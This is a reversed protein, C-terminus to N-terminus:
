FLVYSGKNREFFLKTIKYFASKDGHIFSITYIYKSKSVKFLNLLFKFKIKNEVIDIIISSKNKIFFETKRQKENLFDFIYNLSDGIDILSIFKIITAEYNKTNDKINEFINKIYNGSIM